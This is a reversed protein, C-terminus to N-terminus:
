MCQSAWARYARHSQHTNSPSSKSLPLPLPRTKSQIHTAPTNATRTFEPWATRWFRFEWSKTKGGKENASVPLRLLVALFRTLVIAAFSVTVARGDHFHILWRLAAWLLLISWHFKVNIVMLLLTLSFVKDLPRCNDNVRGTVDRTEARWVLVASHLHLLELSPSHHTDLSFLLTTFHHKLHKFTCM